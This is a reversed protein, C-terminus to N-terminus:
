LSNNDSAYATLPFSYPKTSILIDNDYILQRKNSNHKIAYSQEIVKISGESLNKFWKV